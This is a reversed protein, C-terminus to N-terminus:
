LSDVESMPADEEEFEEVLEAYAEDGPVYSVNGEFLKELVEFDAGLETGFTDDKGLKVELRFDAEDIFKRIAAEASDVGEVTALLAGAFPVTVEWVKMM